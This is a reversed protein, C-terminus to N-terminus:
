GREGFIARGIRVLTAGEEIAVVFDNSMGMSLESWSAGLRALAMDRLERLSRFVARLTDSDNTNPAVMMFGEGRLGPLTAIYAALSFADSMAVGHKTVEHAVNVQVLIPVIKGHESAVRAISDALAVSEVSEIRSAYDLAARVKNRQLPGILEWHLHPLITAKDRLEQVRNEGFYQAGAAAVEAVLDATMGKSVAILRIEAPDRGANMAAISIQSQVRMLRSAVESM